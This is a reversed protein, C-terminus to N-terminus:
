CVRLFLFCIDFIESILSTKNQLIQYFCVEGPKILGKAEADAIMSYGIRCCFSCLVLKKTKKAFLFEFASVFLSTLVKHSSRDKVSSCPEMMELKAAVHGVCGKAVKNLYM